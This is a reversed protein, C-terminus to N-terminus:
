PKMEETEVPEGEWVNSLFVTCMLNWDPKGDFSFAITGVHELREESVKVGLEERAERVAAQPVTEGAEIKGGTGNFKGEGFGRKKMALLVEQTDDNVLFLLTVHKM